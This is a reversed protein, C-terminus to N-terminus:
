FSLKHQASQDYMRNVYESVRARLPMAKQIPLHGTNGIIALKEPRGGSTDSKPDHVIKTIVNAKFLLIIKIIEAYESLLLPASVCPLIRNENFGFSALKKKSCM